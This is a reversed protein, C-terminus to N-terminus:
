PRAARAECTSSWEGGDTDGSHKVKELKFLGNAGKNKKSRVEILKGPELQPYLSNKVHLVPPKGNKEPTGFEPIGIMGDGEEIVLAVGPRVEQDALAVLRGNQLSYSYGFTAFMESLVNQVTDEFAQGSAFQRDLLPNKALAEPLELDLTAALERMISRYSTGRAYTKCMRKKSARLGDSVQLLSKWETSEHKPEGHKLDGAFVLRLDGLYGAHLQVSAPKVTFEDRTREALNYVFIDCKNPDKGLSKDITFVIRFPEGVIVANAIDFMEPNSYVFGGPKGPNARTFTVQAQRGFLRTM